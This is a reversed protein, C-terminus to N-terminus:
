RDIRGEALLADIEQEVSHTITEVRAAYALVDRCPEGDRDELTAAFRRLHDVKKRTTRIWDCVMYMFTVGSRAWPERSAELLVARRAAQLPSSTLDARTMHPATHWLGRARLAAIVKQQACGARCIVLVRGREDVGLSPSQDPHAPCHTARAKPRHCACRPDDCALAFRLESATV